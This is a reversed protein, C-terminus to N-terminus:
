VFFFFGDGNGIIADAHAALFHNGVEAGDGFGARLFKQAGEGMPLPSACALTLARM